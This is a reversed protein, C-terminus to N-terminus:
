LNLRSSCMPMCDENETLVCLGSQGLHKWGMDLMQDRALVSCNLTLQEVRILGEVGEGVGEERTEHATLIFCHFILQEQWM